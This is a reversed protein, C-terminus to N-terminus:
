GAQAMVLDTLATLNAFDKEEVRDFDLPVDFKEEIFAALSVIRFSDVIGSELLNEDDEIAQTSEPTAEALFARLEQRVTERDPMTEQPRRRIPASSGAAEATRPEARARRPRGLVRACPIAGTGGYEAATV